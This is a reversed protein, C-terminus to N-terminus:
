TSDATHRTNDGSTTHRTQGSFFMTQQIAFGFYLFSKFFAFFRGKTKKTKSLFVSFIEFFQM